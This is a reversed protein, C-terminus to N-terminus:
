LPAYADHGRFDRLVTAGSAKIAADVPGRASEETAIHAESVSASGIREPAGFASPFDVDVWGDLVLFQPETYTVGRTKRAGKDVWFVSLASRYQAHPGATVLISRVHVARYTGLGTRFVMTAKGHTLLTTKAANSM